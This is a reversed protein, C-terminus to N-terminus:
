FPKRLINNQVTLFNGVVLWMKGRVGWEDNMLSVVEQKVLPTLCIMM